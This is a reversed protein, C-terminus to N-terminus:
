LVEKESEREVINSPIILRVPIDRLSVMREKALRVAAKGLEESNVMATNLSPTLFKAVEIDDFSVISIEDPIKINKQQLARYVGVALPDSAVMVATPMDKDFYYELFKGALTYGDLTTWDGIFTKKYSTLKKKDMWEEYFVQREDEESFKETGDSNLRIKMGGIFSINRHGKEYLRELHHKAADKLDTYVADVENTVSPDDIVVMDPREKLWSDLLEKQVNGILLVGSCDDLKAIDVSSDALRIIKKVAIKHIVCEKEIGIRISRFYPDELEKIESVTTLIGISYKSKKQRQREKIPYNYFSVAEDIKKKTEETVKITKDENLVRSVTAISVGARSAIDRIGAM